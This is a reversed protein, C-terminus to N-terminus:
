NSNKWKRTQSDFACSKSCYQDGNDSTPQYQEGGVTMWGNGSYSKGCHICTHQGSSSSSSSSSSSGSSHNGTFMWGGILIIVVVIVLGFIANKKMTKKYAAVEEAPMEPAGASKLIQEAEVNKEKRSFYLPNLKDKNRSDLNVGNKILLELIDNQRTKIASFMALEGNKGALNINCGKSILFDVAQKNKHEIALIIPPLESRNIDGGFEVITKLIEFNGAGIAVYMALWSQEKKETNIGTYITNPNLGAQLLLRVVTENGEQCYFILNQQTYPINMKALNDIALQKLDQNEM